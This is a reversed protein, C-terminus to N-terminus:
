EASGIGQLSRMHNLSVGDRYEILKLWRSDDGSISVIVGTKGSGLDVVNLLSPLASEFDYGSTRKEVTLIHLKPLPAIWAGLAYAPHRFSEKGSKWESRVYYRLSGDALRFSQVELTPPIDEAGRREADTV